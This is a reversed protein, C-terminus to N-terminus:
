EKAEREAKEKKAIGKVYNLTAEEEEPTLKKLKNINARQGKSVNGVTNEVFQEATEKGM